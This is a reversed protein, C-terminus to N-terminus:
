WISSDIEIRAHVIAVSKGRFDFKKSAERIANAALTLV